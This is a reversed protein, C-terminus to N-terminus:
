DLRYDIDFRFRARNEVPTSLVEGTAGQYKGSGGTIVVRSTGPEVVQVGSFTMQGHGEHGIIFDCMFNGPEDVRICFGANTGVVARDQTELASNWVILDGKGGPQGLGVFGDEEANSFLTLTEALAPPALLAAALILLTPLRM